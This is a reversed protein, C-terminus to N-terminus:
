DQRKVAVIIYIGVRAGLIRSDTIITKNVWPINIVSQHKVFELGAESLM